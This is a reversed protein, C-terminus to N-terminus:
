YDSFRTENKKGTEATVIHPAQKGPLLVAGIVLDAQPIMAEVDHDTSYMTKARGRFVDDIYRLRELSRDFITVRAKWVWLLKQPM